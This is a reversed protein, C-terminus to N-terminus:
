RGGDCDARMKAAKQELTPFNAANASPPGTSREAARLVTSDAKRADDAPQEM